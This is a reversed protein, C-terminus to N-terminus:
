TRMSAPLTTEPHFADPEGALRWLFTAIHARTLPDDPAFTVASTGTTIGWEVMWRVADTYYRGDEVDNFINDVTPEPSGAFRWLFATAQGRTVTENPSFMTATTGTTIGTTAMWAVAEEFYVDIDVDEFPGPLEALPEDAFRHLFTAVEAREINRDPAFKNPSVGTTLENLVMWTVPDFYYADIPVDYFTIIQFNTSYLDGCDISQDGDCASAGKNIATYLSIGHLSEDDGLTTASGYVTVDADDVRGSPPVGSITIRDIQGAGDTTNHNELWTSLTELTYVRTWQWRGNQPDGDQNRAADFPDPKAIHFPEATLFSDESAATYGGNSSTYFARVISDDHIIVQGTTADNAATINPHEADFGGYVQDWVSDYVDFSTGSARRSEAKALAYSRAAIAQAKIAEPHWSAPVEAIGQLYEDIPTDALVVFFGDTSQDQGVLEVNGTDHRGQAGQSNDHIDIIAGEPRLIRAARAVCRSGCIDGEGTDVHWEWTDDDDQPTADGSIMAGITVTVSSGVDAATFGGIEVSLLADGEANVTASTPRSGNPPPSLRVRLGTGLITDIDDARDEIATGDYYFTLIEEATHGAEARGLAGYQSMGVGHGWGGGVITIFPEDPVAAAGLGTPLLFSAILGLLAVRAPTKRRM